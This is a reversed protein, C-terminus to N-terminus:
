EYTISTNTRGCWYDSAFTTCEADGGRCDANRLDFLIMGRTVVAAADGGDKELIINRPKSPTIAVM